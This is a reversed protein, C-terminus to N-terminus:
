LWGRNNHYKCIRICIDFWFLYIFLCINNVLLLILCMGGGDENWFIFIQSYTGKEFKIPRKSFSVGIDFISIYNKLLLISMRFFLFNVLIIQMLLSRPNILNKTNIVYCLLETIKNEVIIYLTAFKICYLKICFIIVAKGVHNLLKAKDDNKINM